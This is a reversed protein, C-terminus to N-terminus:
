ARRWVFGEPRVRLLAVAVLIVVVTAYTANAWNSFLVQVISLSRAAATLLFHQAMAAMKGVDVKAYM